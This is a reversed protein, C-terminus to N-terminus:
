HCIWMSFRRNYGFVFKGIRKINHWLRNTRKVEMIQEDKQAGNTVQIYSPFLSLSPSDHIVKQINLLSIM